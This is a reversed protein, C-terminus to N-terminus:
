FPLTGEEDEAQVSWSAPSPTEPYQTVPYPAYNGGEERETRRLLHFTNCIIETTRRKVGNKDTWERNDLRGTVDILDGKHCLNCLNEANTGFMVCDFFQTGRNGDKDKFDDDVAISFSVCAKGSPLRRLEPDRTLRGCLIASNLM